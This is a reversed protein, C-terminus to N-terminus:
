KQLSHQMRQMWIAYLVSKHVEPDKEDTLLQLAPLIRSDRKESLSMLAPIRVSPQPDMLSRLLPEIIRPDDFYGLAAAATHRLEVDTSSLADVLPPVARKDKLTGLVSAGHRQAEIGGTKMVRTLMPLADPTRIFELANSADLREADLPSFVAKELAALSEKDGRLALLRGAAFLPMGKQGHLLRALKPVPLTDPWQMLQDFARNRVRDDAHELLRQLVPIAERGEMSCLTPIAFCLANAPTTPDTLLDLLPPLAPAGIAALAVAATTGTVASRGLGGEAPRAQRLFAILPAIAQSSKLWGLGRVADEQVFESKDQLAQILPKEAQPDRLMALSEAVSERVS